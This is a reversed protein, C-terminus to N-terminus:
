LFHYIWKWCFVICVMRNVLGCEMALQTVLFLTRQPWVAQMLYMQVANTWSRGKYSSVLAYVPSM